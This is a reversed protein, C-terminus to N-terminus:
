MLTSGMWGIEHPLSCPLQRWRGLGEEYVEATKSGVGGAVIVCEGVAACAFARRPEHMPSLIDM